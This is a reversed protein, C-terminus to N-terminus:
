YAITHLKDSWELEDRLLENQSTDTRYENTVKHAKLGWKTSIEPTMELEASLVLWAEDQDSLNEPTDDDRDGGRRRGGRGGRGQGEETVIVAM